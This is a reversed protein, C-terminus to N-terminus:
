MIIMTSTASHELLLERLRMHRNNRERFIELEEDTIYADERGTNQGKKRCPEILDQFLQKSSPQAKKQLDPIVILDAFDIRFKSLLKAMNRQQEELGGSKSLLTFIRLKCNRFAQRRQIIYPLLITLGGDDYLWYVDIFGKPHKQQFRTVNSLVTMPLNVGEYGRPEAVSVKKNASKKRKPEKKEAGLDNFEGHDDNFSHSDVEETENEMHLITELVSSYDLGGKVRLIGVAMFHEFASHVVNVYAIVDNKPAERWDSKYGLLMMNPRLNGLGALQILVKAGHEFSDDEVHQYFSRIKHKNLWARSQRVLNTRASLATGEPIVNGCVLLSMQKTILNAFDVLPPRVGPFGSMCLIQPRFNKVHEEINWLDHSSKLAGSYAAAQMSSGWNADPKRYWVFLYFIIILGYTILATIWNILFMAAICLVTGILSLWATYYKFGPRWGPSKMLEAHFVCFNILSYAALYFNSTLTGVANLEAILLFGVAVLFCIMYGRIPDQNPGWGVAFPGLGPYLKDQAMAMLIRPGSCLTAIASSLSAAFCGIYIMPGWSSIMTMTQYNYLLGYKCDRDDCQFAQSLIFDSATPPDLANLLFPTPTTSNDTVGMLYLETVNGSATRMVAGTSILGLLIYSFFTGVIAALTGLPIAYSPDKLDGSLNAGAVIGTVAPFYVAFVSFFSHQEGDTVSFKPAFNSKFVEWDFGLFGQARQEDTYPGIAAGVIFAVQAALLMVLLVVQIRAVWQMGVICVLLCFILAIVGIIRIDNKADDVIWTKFDARMMEQVAECFGITHMACAICNAAWFMLGIAGGFEAGLSRSIMYYIGGGKIQGNTSVASVSLATITTVLNCLTLLAVGVFVGGQGMVWTLRLFLMVGWINLLCPLFVGLIWGLKVIGKKSEQAVEADEKREGDEHLLEPLTPRGAAGAKAISYINRYNMERPFAERTMAHLSALFTGEYNYSEPVQLASMGGGGSNDGDDDCFFPSSNPKPQPTDIKSVHFRSRDDGLNQEM